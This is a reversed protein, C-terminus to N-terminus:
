SASFRRRMTTMVCPPLIREAHREIAADCLRGLLQLARRDPYGSTSAGPTDGDGAEAGLALYVIEWHRPEGRPQAQGLGIVRGSQEVVLSRTRPVGPVPAGLGVPCHRVISVVETGM